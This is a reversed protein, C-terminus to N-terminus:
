SDGSLVTLATVDELDKARGAARKARILDPRSAVYFPQGSHSMTVRNKWATHFRLGPTRTQVDVRARDNFVVIEHSLLEDATIMAATGFRAALLAELLRRANSPTAEILIDLDVTMRPVGHLIAAVGGIVVYKVKRSHLCAFVDQFQNLM